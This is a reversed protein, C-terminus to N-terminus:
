VQEPAAILYVATLFILAAIGVLKPAGKPDAHVDLMRSSGSFLTPGAGSPAIRM